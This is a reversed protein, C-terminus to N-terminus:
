QMDSERPVECTAAANSGHFNMNKAKLTNKIIAAALAGSIHELTLITYLDPTWSSGKFTHASNHTHANKQFRRVPNEFPIYEKKLM